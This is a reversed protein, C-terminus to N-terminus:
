SLVVPLPRRGSRLKLSGGVEQGDEQAQHARVAEVQAERQESERTGETDTEVGLPSWM